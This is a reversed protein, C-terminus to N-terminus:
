CTYKEPKLSDTYKLKQMAFILTNSKQIYSYALDMLNETHNIAMFQSSMCIKNHSLPFYLIEEALLLKYM